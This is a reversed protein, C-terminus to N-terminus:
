ISKNAFDIESKVGYPIMAKPLSQGFNMNYVIPLDLRKSIKLLIELYETYYIEDYPKGVLLCRVNQIIGQRILEELMENFKSPIPKEESTELFLIKDKFFDKTPILDYKEYVARQDIYRESTYTDYISELCGGWLYGMISGSGNIFEHGKIEEKKILPVGSQNEDYQTRNLYWIPSSIVEYPEDSFFRLYSEKTYPLIDTQLECLDSLFNLGYYTVLGLKNFMLHNNTSDSFGIFIKPNNKVLNKFEEDEMLYPITKYTDDGGIACIIGKISDDKFALKLDEARKSPNKFIYEVGKLANPMFIPKLGMEKLRKIGLNLQHKLNPEGLIGSSLSLIAVKDGMQLKKPKIM